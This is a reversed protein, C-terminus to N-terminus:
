VFVVRMCQAPLLTEQFLRGKRIDSEPPQILFLVYNIKDGQRCLLLFPSHKEGAFM